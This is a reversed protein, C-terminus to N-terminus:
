NNKWELIESIAKKSGYKDVSISKCPIGSRRFLGIAYSYRYESDNFVEKIGSNVILKSCRKCPMSTCYLIDGAGKILANEEAHICGCQGPLYSECCNVESHDEECRDRKLRKRYDM